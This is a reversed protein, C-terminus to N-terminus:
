APVDLLPLCTCDDENLIVGCLAVFCYANHAIWLGLPAHEGM